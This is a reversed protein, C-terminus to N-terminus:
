PPLPCAPRPRRRVAEALGRQGDRRQRDAFLGDGGRVRAVPAERGRGSTRDLGHGGRDRGRRRRVAVGRGVSRGWGWPLGWGTASSPRAGMAPPRQHDYRRHGRRGAWGTAGGSRRGVGVLEVGRRHRRDVQDGQYRPDVHPAGGLDDDEQEHEVREQDPRDRDDGPATAVEGAAGELAGVLGSLPEDAIRPLPPARGQLTPRRLAHRTPQEPDRGPVGGSVAQTLASSAAGAGRATGAASRRGPPADGVKAVQQGPPDEGGDQVGQEPVPHDLVGDPQGRVEGLDGPQRHDAARDAFAEEAGEAQDRDDEEHHAGLRLDGVAPHQRSQDGERPRGIRSTRPVPRGSPSRRTDIGPQTPDTEDSTRAATVAPATQPSSVRRSEKPM